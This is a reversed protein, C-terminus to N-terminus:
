LNCEETCSYLKLCLQKGPIKEQSFDAGGGRRTYCYGNDSMLSGLFVQTPQELETERAYTNKNSVNQPTQPLNIDFSSSLFM